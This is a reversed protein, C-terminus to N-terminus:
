HIEISGVTVSINLKATYPTQRFVEKGPGKNVIDMKHAKANIKGNKTSINLGIDDMKEPLQITVNGNSVKIHNEGKVSKLVLSKLPAVKNRINIQGDVEGLHVSGNGAEVNLLEGQFSNMQIRGVDSILSLRSAETVQDVEIDGNKTEVHIEKLSGPPINLVIQGRQRKGPILKKWGKDFTLVNIVAKDKDYTINMSPKGFITEQGHFDIFLDPHASTIKINSLDSHLEIGTVKEINARYEFNGEFSNVLGAVLLTM